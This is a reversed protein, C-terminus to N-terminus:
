ANDLFNFKSQQEAAFDDFSRFRGAEFDDLGQRIGEIADESDQTEWALANALMKAATLSIDQGQREAKERLQAELEPNLSIVIAVSLRKQLV